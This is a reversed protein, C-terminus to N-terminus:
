VHARGIQKKAIKMCYFWMFIFGGGLIAILAIIIILPVPNFSNM